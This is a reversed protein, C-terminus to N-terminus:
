HNEIVIPVKGTLYLIKCTIKYYKVYQITAAKLIYM